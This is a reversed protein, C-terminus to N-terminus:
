ERFFAIVFYQALELPPNTRPPQEIDAASKAVEQNDAFRSPPLRDTQLHGRRTDAEEFAQFGIATKIELDYSLREELGIQLRAAKSGDGHELHDLVKGIRLRMELTDM